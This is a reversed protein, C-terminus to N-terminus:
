ARRRDARARRLRRALLWCLSAWALGAAWGALVDTPWHVGLHVRSVGVLATVVVAVGLLWAGVRRRPHSEALLAGLALYATASTMAHGSPFSATFVETAHPVLDPRQREFAFKLGHSLLVGGAVSVLLLLAPERGRTLRLHGAAGITLLTVVTVSGLATVDRVAGEFWAPGRLDHLARLLAADLRRVPASGVTAALVAFAVVGLLALLLVWREARTV